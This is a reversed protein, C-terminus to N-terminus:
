KGNRTEGPLWVTFTTGRGLASDVSITGGHQDVVQRSIALGLGTGRGSEKTSFFPEFVQGRTEDNMGPGDDRVEIAVGGDRASAGVWVSGGDRDFAEAANKLLNVFVQGVARPDGQVAPLDDAIALHLSVGAGQYLYTLLQVASGLAHGIDISDDAGRWPAAFDRLDGVLRGTRDLGERVIAALEEITEL